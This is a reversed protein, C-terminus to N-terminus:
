YHILSVRWIIPEDSSLFNLKKPSEVDFDAGTLLRETSDENVISFPILRDPDALQIFDQIEISGDGNELGAFNPDVQYIRLLYDASNEQSGFGNDSLFWFNGNRDPAFQVGSFGQIPQGEFPGTRGNASIPKGEGNDAGSNPGDAFTDAPLSAFGELIIKISEAILIQGGQEYQGEYIESDNISM